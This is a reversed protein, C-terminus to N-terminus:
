KFYKPHYCFLHNGIQKYEFKTIYRVWKGDTSTLPNHFFMVGKPLIHNNTLALRAANYCSQSPTQDFRKSWIGDFRGDDYVTYTISWERDAAINVVVDAVARQGEFSENGAEANVLKALLEYENTLHSPVVHEGYVNVNPLTGGSYVDDVNVCGTELYSILIVVIILKM